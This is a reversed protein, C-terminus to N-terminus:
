YTPDGEWGDLTNADFIRTFGAEDGEIPEPRDSQRPAYPEGGAQQAGVTRGPGLLLGALLSQL